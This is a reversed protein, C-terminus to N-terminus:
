RRNDMESRFGSAPWMDIDFRDFGHPTSTEFRRLAVHFEVLMQLELCEASPREVVSMGSEVAIM